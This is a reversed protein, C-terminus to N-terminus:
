KKTQQIEIWADIYSAVFNPIVSYTLILIEIWADIYSAVSIIFCSVGRSPIEIWADIYSAVPMQGESHKGWILKLGRM